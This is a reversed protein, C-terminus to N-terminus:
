GRVRRWTQTRFLIGVYGRVKLTGNELWIKCKYIKGNAPDLIKGDQWTEQDSDATPDRKLSEIIVMGRVKQDKRHDACKKCVPDASIGPRPLVDVVKGYVQDGQRYLEVISKAEGTEDDITQWRGLVKDNAALATNCFWVISIAIILHRM